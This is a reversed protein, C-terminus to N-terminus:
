VALRGAIQALQRAIVDIEAMADVSKLVSKESYYQLLPETQAHYADLRSMVTKANDDARRKMDQAGCADCTEARRPPKFTEHYGEGCAGCTFRGTIRVVMKVDDVELSVAANVRQGGSALLQDLAEAQGTTRPFGDLVVGRACDAAALRDRLIALVIGDSVLEGAEMVAKAEKGAETGAAVAARLLDGTSLQVLGFQEELMRAQTGKGAGPPGLLILVPAVRPTISGDM